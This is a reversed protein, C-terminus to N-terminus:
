SYVKRQIRAPNLYIIQRIHSCPKLFSRQEIQAFGLFTSYKATDTRLTWFYVKSYIHAPDLFPADGEHWLDVLHHEPFLALEVIDSFM